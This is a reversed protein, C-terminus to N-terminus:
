RARDNKLISHRASYYFLFGVFLFAITMELVYTYSLLMNPAHNSFGSRIYEIIQLIPNFSLYYALKQPLHDLSFFIGSVFYLMRLLVGLFKDLDIYYYSVISVILALGITILVLFLAMFIVRLPAYINLDGKMYIILLVSVIAILISISLELIIRSIVTDIVKVQKYVLLSQNAAIVRSCSTISKQFFLYPLIGTVLFLLIPMDGINRGLFYFILWFTLIHLFPEILIWAYSFYSDGFRTTMERNLLAWIVAKHETISSKLSTNM